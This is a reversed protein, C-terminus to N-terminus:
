NQEVGYVWAQVLANTTGAFLALTIPFGDGSAVMPIPTNFQGDAVLNGASDVVFWGGLTNTVGAGSGPATFVVDVQPSVTQAGGTPNFTPAGWTVLPYGGVTYGSFTAEVALLDALTETPTPTYGTVFLHLKSAAMESQIGTCLRLAGVLPIQQM